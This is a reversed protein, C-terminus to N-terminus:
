RGPRRCHHPRQASPAKKDAPGGVVIGQIEAADDKMGLLAGIGVLKHTMHQNFSDRRM